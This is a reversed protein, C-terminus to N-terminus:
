KREGLGPSDGITLSTFCEVIMLLSVLTATVAYYSELTMIYSRLIKMLNAVPRLIAPRAFTVAGISAIQRVNKKQTRPVVDMVHFPAHLPDGGGGVGVIQLTPRSFTQLSFSGRAAM